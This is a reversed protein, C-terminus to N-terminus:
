GSALQRTEPRIVICAGRRHGACTDQADTQTLGMVQAKWVTKERLRVPEVRAEGAEAARRAALAASHAATETAYTGVQVAWNATHAPIRSPTPRSIEAARASAILTVRSAMQVPKRSIPVDM